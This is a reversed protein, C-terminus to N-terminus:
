WDDNKDNVSVKMDSIIDEIHHASYNKIGRWIKKSVFAPPKDSHLEQKKYRATRDGIFIFNDLTYRYKGEKIELKINFSVYYFNTVGIKSKTYMKYSGKGIIKGEGLDSFTILSEPTDFTSTFWESLKIFIKDKKLDSDIVGQYFVLGNSDKQLEKDVQYAKIDQAFLSYPMVLLLVILYKM